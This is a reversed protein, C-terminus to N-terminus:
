VGHHVHAAWLSPTHPYNDRTARVVERLVHAAREPRGALGRHFEIAMRSAVRDNIQWLTGVVSSYGALQFAGTIHLAEDGLDPAARATHCASLVALRASPLDLRSVDLLTLPRDGHVLLRSRSADDVAHCAFHVISHRPLEDLVTDRQAFEGILAVAPWSTMLTSAERRAHPLPREGETTPMAVVLLEGELPRRATDRARALARVTPTYSSVVRDLASQGDTGAAHLPLAALPGGPSWWVRDVPGLHDLVPGVVAHWLWALVETVVHQADAEAQGPTTTAALAAAFRSATRTADDLTLGPLPVVDVGHATLVLADCRHRSTNVVVVPGGSAAARLEAMPPPRLFDAFGPLARIRALLRDRRAAAAHREDGSRAAALTDVTSTWEDAVAPHAERLPTLDLRADLAQGILVGRGQELWRLALEEDGADLVLAAADAAIGNQRTLLHEQDTRALRRSVTQPILEVALGAARLATARDGSHEAASSWLHAADLRNRADAGENTAAAAFVAAARRVPGDDGLHDAYVLLAEGWLRQYRAREPEPVADSRVARGWHAVARGLAGPEGTRRYEQRWADALNSLARGHGGTGFPTGALVQEHLRIAEHLDAPDRRAAFRCRLANAYTETTSIDDSRLRRFAAQVARDAVAPDETRWYLDQLAAAYGSGPVDAAVASLDVAERLADLDGFHLYRTRLVEALNGVWGAHDRHGPPRQALGSRLLDAAEALDDVDGAEQFRRLLAASLSGRVATADAAPVELAARLLRVAQDIDDRDGSHEYRYRRFVGALQVMRGLHPNDRSLLGVVEDAVAVGEDLVTHEGANLRAYLNEALNGLVFARVESRAAGRFVDTARHLDATRGAHRYRAMLALGYHNAATPDRAPVSEHLRVSEHLHGPDGDLDFLDLYASALQATVGPDRDPVGVLLAVGAELDVRDHRVTFRALLVQGLNARAAPSHEVLRYAAGFLDVADDLARLDGSREYEAVREAGRRTLANAQDASM